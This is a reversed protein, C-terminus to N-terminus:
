HTRIDSAHQGVSFLPSALGVIPTAYAIGVVAAAVAAAGIVIKTKRKM